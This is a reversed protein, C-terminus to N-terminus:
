TASERTASLLAQMPFGKGPDVHGGVIKYAQTVALHTTIGGHNLLLGGAVIEDELQINYQKTLKALEPAAVALMARGFADLWEERTQLYSGVFELGLSRNNIGRAHYAIRDFPVCQIAEKSDFVLHASAKVWAQKKADWPKEFWRAVSRAGKEVEQSQTCHITVWKWSNVKVIRNYFKAEIM